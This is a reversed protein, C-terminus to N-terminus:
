YGDMRNGHQRTTTIAPLHRALRRRQQHLALRGELGEAEVGQSRQGERGVRGLHPTAPPPHFLSRCPSLSEGGTQKTATAKTSTTTTKKNEQKQKLHVHQRNSIAMTSASQHRSTPNQQQMEQQQKNAPCWDIIAFGNMGRVNTHRDAQVDRSPRM